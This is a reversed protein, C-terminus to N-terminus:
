PPTIDSNLACVCVDVRVCACVCVCVCVARQVNSAAGNLSAYLLVKHAATQILQLKVEKNLKTLQVYNNHIWVTLLHFMGCIYLVTRKKASHKVNGNSNSVLCLCVETAAQHSADQSCCCM